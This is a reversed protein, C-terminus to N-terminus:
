KKKKCADGHWRGYMAKNLGTTGCHECTLGEEKVVKKAPKEQMKSLTEKAKILENFGSANAVISRATTLVRIQAIIAEDINEIAKDIMM